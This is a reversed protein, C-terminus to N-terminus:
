HASCTCRTTAHPAIGQHICSGSTNGIKFGRRHLVVDASSITTGDRCGNAQSLGCHTHSLKGDRCGVLIHFKVCLTKAHSLRGQLRACTPQGSVDVDFVNKLALFTHSLVEVSEACRGRLANGQGRLGSFISTWRQDGHLYQDSVTSRSVLLVFVSCRPACFWCSRRPWLLAM